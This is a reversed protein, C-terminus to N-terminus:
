SKSLFHIDEVKIFFFGVVVNKSNQMSLFWVIIKYRVLIQTNGAVFDELAQM